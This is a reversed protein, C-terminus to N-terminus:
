SIVEASTSQRIATSRTNADGTALVTTSESPPTAIGNGNGLVASATTTASMAARLTSFRPLSSSSSNGFSEAPNSFLPHMGASGINTQATVLPETPLSSRVVPDVNSDSVGSPVHSTPPPSPTTSTPEPACLPPVSSSPDIPIDRTNENRRRDAERQQHEEHDVLSLRMAEMIM